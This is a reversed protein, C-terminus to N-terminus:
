PVKGRRLRFFAQMLARCEAEMLGGQVDVRHNLRSDSAMEYLSVVAGWKPDAVGYVLSAVRAHIVAGMCMPCPEVTVVLLAGTLRYNRCGLCAERIALIEAHATPDSLGVTRNHARALVAGERSVLLAGIPVEGEDFGTKAEEIAQHMYYPLDFGM